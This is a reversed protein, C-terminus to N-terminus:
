LRCDVAFDNEPACLLVIMRAPNEARCEQTCRLRSRVIGCGDLAACPLLAEDIGKCPEHSVMILRGGYDNPYPLGARQTGWIRCIDALEEGRSDCADMDVVIEVDRWASYLDAIIREAPWERERGLPYFRVGLDRRMADGAAADADAVAVRCGLRQLRRVLAEGAASVGHLILVRRAPWRLELYGARRAGTASAAGSNHALRGARLDEMRRELYNDAM